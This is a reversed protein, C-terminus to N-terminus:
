NGQAVQLQSDMSRIAVEIEESVGHGMEIWTLALSGDEQQNVKAAYLTGADLSGAEDAKFKYMVRDTGDDGSYVTVGDDLVLSREVSFRGMAYHKVVETGVGEAPVLEMPYGYDYPNAPEGLYTAMVAASESWNEGSESPYEEGSLGTNWPTVSAFCNNWTGNVEAFDVTEGELVDWGNQGQKIYVKSIGGPRCEFNTYLYGESSDDATPLFMNGDPHNCTAMPEGSVTLIEGFTANSGPITEGVRGVIQYEGAALQVSKQASGKPVGVAEFTDKNANFGTIVGVVGRNFPYLNTPDPHQVNMFLTGNDAIQLGTVESGLPLTAFRTLSDAKPDYVWLMNNQHYGTDEGIWLRGQADVAINDPNSISDVSCSNAAEESDDYPGGAVIPSLQTVSNDESLDGVFIAGCLNEELRIDGSDDAMGEGVESIAMYFKNNAADAAVGEMKRWEATAGVSQAYRHTMVFPAAPNDLALMPFAPSQEDEEAANEPELDAQGGSMQGGSAGGGSSGGSQAFGLSLLAAAVWLMGIFSVKKM